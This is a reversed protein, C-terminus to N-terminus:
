FKDDDKKPPGGFKTDFPGFPGGIDNGDDNGFPSNQPGFRNKVLDNDFSTDRPGFRKKEPDNDSGNDLTTAALPDFQNKFISPSEETNDGRLLELIREIIRAIWRSTEKKPFAKAATIRSQIQADDPWIELAEELVEIAKELNGEKEYAEAKKVLAKVKKDYYGFRERVAERFAKGKVGKKILEDMYAAQKTYFKPEGEISESMANDFAKIWSYEEGCDPCTGMHEEFADMDESDEDLYEIFRDKFEECEM